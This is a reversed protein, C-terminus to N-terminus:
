IKLKLKMLRKTILLLKLVNKALMKEYNAFKLNNVLNEIENNVMFNECQNLYLHKILGIALKKGCFVCIIDQNLKM